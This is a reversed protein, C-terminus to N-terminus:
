KRPPRRGPESLTLPWATPRPARFARPSRALITKTARGSASSRARSRYTTLSTAIQPSAPIACPLQEMEILRAPRPNISAHALRRMIRHRRPCLSKTNRKRAESNCSKNSSPSRDSSPASRELASIRSGIDACMGSFKRSHPMRNPTRRASPTRRERRPTACDRWPFFREHGAPIVTTQVPPSLQRFVQRQRTKNTGIFGPM